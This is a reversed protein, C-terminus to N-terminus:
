SKHWHDEEPGEGALRIAVLSGRGGSVGGRDVAATQAQELGSFESLIWCAPSDPSFFFCMVEFQGDLAIGNNSDAM